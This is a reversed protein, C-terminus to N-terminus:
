NDKKTALKFEFKRNEKEINCLDFIDGYRSKLLQQDLSKRKITKWGFIYNKYRMEESNVQQLLAILQLDLSEIEKNIQKLDFEYRAKADMLEDRRLTIADIDITIKKPQETAVEETTIQENMDNVLERIYEEESSFNDAYMFPDYM